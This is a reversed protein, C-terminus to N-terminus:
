IYVGIPDKSIGSLDSVSFDFCKNLGMSMLIDNCETDSSIKFKPIKIIWDGDEAKLNDIDKFDIKKVYDELKEGQPPLFLYIKCKKNDFMISLVYGDNYTMVSTWNGPINM